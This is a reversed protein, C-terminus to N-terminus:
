SWTLAPTSQSKSPPRTIARLQDIAAWDSVVFGHFGLESKLVDTLLEQNGHMKKGNWSSYSVMISGVGAKIAALYGPLHIQKLTALDCETNGQDKGYLTGGDGLLAQRLRAGVTTEGLTPGQLGACRRRGWSQSWSRRSASAKTPAAGASTAPSPSAPAFAWRIGTGVVERATIRAAKEVLGPDRTAGMGINHPFIVAGDVNNHGHVADIGYILPIKMRSKLAWSQFDDHTKAWGQATIDEPDSDGGSLVSGLSYRAIDARDHVAKLDAQTMQGIKEDLTMAKLLEDTKAAAAADDGDANATAATIAVAGSLFATASLLWSSLTGMPITM